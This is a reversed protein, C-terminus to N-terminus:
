GLVQVYLVRDRPVWAEGQLEFSREASELQKPNALRYHNADMGVLVGEFSRNQDVLHLRVLRKRLLMM